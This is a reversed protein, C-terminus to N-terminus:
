YDLKRFLCIFTESLLVLGIRLNVAWDRGTIPEYPLIAASITRLLRPRTSDQARCPDM